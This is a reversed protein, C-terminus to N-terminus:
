GWGAGEAGGREERGAGAVGEGGGGRGDRVSDAREVVEGGRRRTWKQGVVVVVAFGFGGWNRGGGRAEAVGAESGQM